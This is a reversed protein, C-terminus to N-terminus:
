WEFVLRNPEKYSATSINIDTKPYFLLPTDNSALIQHSATASTAQVNPNFSANKKIEVPKRSRPRGRHLHRECYKQNPAVDKSCRWKKGDTRKCRGPEPDGNKSIKLNFIGGGNLTDAGIRGVSRRIPFKENGESRTDM